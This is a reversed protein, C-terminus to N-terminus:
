PRPRGVIWSTALYTLKEGGIAVLLFVPIAWHRTRWAAVAMAGAWVLAVTVTHAPFAGARAVADWGATRGAALDRSVDLDWSDVAGGFGETVAFGAGTGVATLAVIAVLMPVGIRRAIREAEDRWGAREGAETGGGTRSRADTQQM